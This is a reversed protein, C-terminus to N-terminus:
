VSPRITRELALGLGFGNSIRKLSVLQEGEKIRRRCPLDPRRGSVREIEGISACSDIKDLINDGVTTLFSVGKERKAQKVM